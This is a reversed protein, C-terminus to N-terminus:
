PKIFGDGTWIDGIDPIEGIILYTGWTPNETPAQAYPDLVDFLVVEQVINNENVVAWNQVAM